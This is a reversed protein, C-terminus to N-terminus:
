AAVGEPMLRRKMQESLKSEDVTPNVPPLEDGHYTQPAPHNSTITEIRYSDPTLKRVLQNLAHFEVCASLVSTAQITDERPAEQATKWKFVFKLRFPDVASM